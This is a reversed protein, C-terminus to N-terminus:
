FGRWMMKSFERQLDIPREVYIPATLNISKSNNINQATTMPRFGKRINEMAPIFDPMAYQVNKLMEQSLVYEGGHVIAKPEYKGWDGTYGGDSKWPLPKTSSSAIWVASQQRQLSEAQAIAMKIKEILTDYEAKREQIMSLEAAHYEKALNNTYIFVRSEVAKKEDEAKQLSVREDYLKQILDQQEKEQNQLELQKKLNELKIGRATKQNEFTKIINENQLQLARKAAFEDTAASIKNAKELQIEWLKEQFDFRSQWQTDLSARQDEKARTNQSLLNEGNSGKANQIEEIQKKISEFKPTAEQLKQAATAWDVDRGSASAILIDNADKMDKEIQKKEELLSRYQSWVADNSSKASDKNITDITKEYETRVKKLQEEVSKHADKITKAWKEQADNAKKTVGDIKWIENKLITYSDKVRDVSQKLAETEEKSKKASWSSSSATSQSVTSLEKIASDIDKVRKELDNINKQKENYQKNLENFEKNSQKAQNSSIYEDMLKSTRIDNLRNQETYTSLSWEGTTKTYQDQIKSFESQSERMKDKITAQQLQLLRIQENAAERIVSALAKYEDISLKIKIKNLYEMRDSFSKTNDSVYKLSWSYQDSKDKLNEINKQSDQIKQNYEDQTITGDELQKKLEEQKKKQDDLKSSYEETKKSANEMATPVKETVDLFTSVWIWLIAIAWAILWFTGILPASAVELWVVATTAVGTSTAFIWMFGAWVPWLVAIAGWILGIAWVITIITGTLRPFETALYSIKEVIWNIFTLIGNFVPNVSKWLTALTNSFTDQINSLRGNLTQAQKEMNGGFTKDMQDLLIPLIDKSLLKGDSAMKMLEAESKGMAESLLRWVWIGNEALQNVEEASLKWKTQIQGLARSINLLTEGNGWAASVADGVNRMTPIIKQADYGMAILLQSAKAYDTMNFPTTKAENQLDAFLKNWKEASGLMTGFSIKLQEVKGAADFIQKGWNMVTGVAFVGGIASWLKSWKSETNGIDNVVDNVKKLHDRLTDARWQLDKMQVNLKEWTDRSGNNWVKKMTEKLDLMQREVKALDIQAKIKVESKDALKSELAKWLKELSAQDASFGVQANFLSM